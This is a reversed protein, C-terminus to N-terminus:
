VEIFKAIYDQCLGRALEFDLKCGADETKLKGKFALGGNYYIEANDSDEISFKTANVGIVQATKTHILIM